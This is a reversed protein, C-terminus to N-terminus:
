VEEVPLNSFGDRITIMRVRLAEVTKRTQELTSKAPESFGATIWLHDNITQTLSRIQEDIQAM